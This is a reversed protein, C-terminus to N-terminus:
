EGLPPGQVDDQNKLPFIKNRLEVCATYAEEKTRKIGHSFSRAHRKGDEDLWGYRFGFRGDFQFESICGRCFTGSNVKMKAKTEACHKGDLISNYLKDKEHEGAVTFERAELEAKCTCPFLEILVIRFHDVGISKMAEYFKSTRDRSQAKHGSFRKPLPTTTSGIYVMDNVDNVIKYVKGNQYNIAVKKAARKKTSM